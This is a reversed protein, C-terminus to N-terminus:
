KGRLEKEWELFELNEELSPDDEISLQEPPNGYKEDRRKKVLKFHTELEWDLHWMWKPPMEDDVLNEQWGLIQLAQNLVMIFDAPM